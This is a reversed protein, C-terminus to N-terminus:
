TAASAAYKLRMRQLLIFGAHLFVCLVYLTRGRLWLPGRGDHFAHCVPRGLFPIDWVWLSLPLWAWFATSVVVRMAKLRAGVVCAVVAVTIACFLSPDHTLWSALVAPTYDAGFPNLMCMARYFIANHFIATLPIVSSACALAWRNKEKSNVRLKLEFPAGGDVVGAPMLGELVEANKPTGVPRITLGFQV